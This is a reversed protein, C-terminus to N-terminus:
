GGESQCAGTQERTDILRNRKQNTPQNKKKKLDWMTGVMTAHREALDIQNELKALDNQIGIEDAKSYM